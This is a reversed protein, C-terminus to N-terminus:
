DEEFITSYTERNIIRYITYPRVGIYEAIEKGRMGGDHLSLIEGIQHKNFTRRKKGNASSARMVNETTRNLGLSFAHKQNESKTCWELNYISNNLTDGDIHNVEPKNETNPIFAEAILRHLSVEKVKSRKSLSHVFYRTPKYKYKNSSKRLYPKKVMTERTYKRKVSILVGLRNIMYFGEYGNVWVFGDLLCVADSIGDVLIGNKHLKM